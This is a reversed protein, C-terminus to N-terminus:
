RLCQLGSQFRPNAVSACNPIWSMGDTAPIIDAFSQKVEDHIEASLAGLNRTLVTRILPVHYDNNTIFPGM